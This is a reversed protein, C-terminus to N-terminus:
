SICKKIGEKEYGGFWFQERGYETYECIGLTHDAQCFNILHDETWWPLHNIPKFLRRHPLFIMDYEPWVVDRYYYHVGLDIFRKSLEPRNSLFYFQGSYSVSFTRFGRIKFHKFLPKCIQKIEEHYCAEGANSMRQLYDSINFMNDKVWSKAELM